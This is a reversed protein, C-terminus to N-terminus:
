VALRTFRACDEVLPLVKERWPPMTVVLREVGSRAYADWQRMTLVQESRVDLGAVPVVHFATVPIPDRDADAARRQLDVIQAKLAEEPVGTTVPCWGDAYQVVRAHNRDNGGVLIPPHPKQIPKPWSMLPTFDVFEGHFEAVDNAWIEKMAAVRERMLRWRTKPDTGHNRMEPENWGGGIGFIFRGSCLHDLTAVEKATLIPDRENVLAIGTGLLIRSTHAAAHTLALFPDMLHWYERALPQGRANRLPGDSDLAPIHPHDGAWFSEFGAAELAAGLEGPAISYDTMLSVAGLRM